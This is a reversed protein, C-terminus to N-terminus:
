AGLHSEDPVVEELSNDEAVRTERSGEFSKGCTDIWLRSHMFIETIVITVSQAESFRQEEHGPDRKDGEVAAKSHEM